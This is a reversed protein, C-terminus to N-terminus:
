SERWYGRIGACGQAGYAYADQEDVNSVGGLAFVPVAVQDVIEAFKDWGLPETDPHSKTYKVPSLLAFSVGISEAKKLESMTHGSAAVLYPPPLPRDTAAALRKSDLHVGDAGLMLATEPSANLLVQCDHAHALEIVKKALLAYDHENMGKARLQMLRIGSQLSRHLGALFAREDNGPDPTILYHSPLQLATIIPLNAEPFAYDDLADMSVWAVPQGEKGHAEGSFQNVRWVDLLVSKDAYDHHIRILPRADLVEIGVEEHLERTLADRTAEGNELKGGPFEWLGGQHLHEARKAILVEGKDNFVAAAVVHIRKSM